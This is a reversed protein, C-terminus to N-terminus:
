HMNAQRDSICRSKNTMDPVHVQVQHRSPDEEAAVAYEVMQADAAVQVLECVEARAKGADAREGAEGRLLCRADTSYMSEVSMCSWSLKRVVKSEKTGVELEM